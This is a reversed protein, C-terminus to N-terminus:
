YGRNEAQSLHCFYGCYILCQEFPIMDFTCNIFFLCFFDQQEPPRSWWLSLSCQFMTDFSNLWTLLRLGTGTLGTGVSLEATSSLRVSESREPSGPLYGGKRQGSSLRFLIVTAWKYPVRFGTCHMGSM